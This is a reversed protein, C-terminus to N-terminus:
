SPTAGGHATVRPRVAIVFARGSASDALVAEGPQLARVVEAMSPLRAQVVSYPIASRTPMRNVAAQLDSDFGLTHTLTLDVQSLLSSDVAGPQQTAFILSLGADRGRKVYDILPATAATPGVSPVLLHAEDVVMWVINPLGEDASPAGQRRAVRRAQQVRGMREQVLRTLVGVVLARDGEPLQRLLFVNVIGPRLVEEVSLGPNSLLNTKRLSALRWRFGDISSQQFQQLLVPAAARITLDDLSQVPGGSLVSLLIQGMPTFRELGLAMLWDDENLQSPSISFPTAHPVETKANGPYRCVVNGVSASELGWASLAVLQERDETLEPSPPHALTWFQDQIDFVLTSSSRAEGDYVNPLGAVSEILVGLDFSKGSGRSGFIGVVHPFGIDCWVEYDCLNTAQGQENMRGLYSLARSKKGQRAGVYISKKANDVQLTSYSEATRFRSNTIVRTV